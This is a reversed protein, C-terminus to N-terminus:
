GGLSREHQAAGRFGPRLGSKRLRKYSDCDAEMSRNRAATRVAPEDPLGPTRHVARSPIAAAGIVFGRLHEVYSLRCTDPHPCCAPHNM